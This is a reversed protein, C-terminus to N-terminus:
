ISCRSPNWGCAYGGGSVLGEPAQQSTIVITDYAICGMDDTVMVDYTGSSVEITNDTSGNSWLYNFPPSGDYVTAGIYTTSNHFKM